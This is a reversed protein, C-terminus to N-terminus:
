KLGNYVLEVTNGLEAAPDDVLPCVSSGPMYGLSLVKIRRATEAVKEVHMEGSKNGSDLVNAILAIEQDVLGLLRGSLQQKVENIMEAVMPSNRVRSHAAGIPLTVIQKLRELATLSQDSAVETQEALVAQKYNRIIEVAIEEKSEFHLYVTGKGVDAHAAIEDVTVKKLGYRWFLEEASSVIRERVSEKPERAM